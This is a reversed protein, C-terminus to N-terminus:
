RNLYYRLLELNYPDYYNVDGVRPDYLAADIRANGARTFEAREADSYNTGNNVVADIIKNFNFATPDYVPIGGTDDTGGAGLGAYFQEKEWDLLQQQYAQDRADLAAQLKAQAISNAYNENASALMSNYDAAMSALQNNGQMRVQNVQNDLDTLKNQHDRKYAQLANQYDSELALASSESLGGTIGQASLQQPLDRKAIMNEVYAGRTNDEYQQQYQPRLANIQSVLQDVQGRVASENAAQASQMAALSNVRQKELEDIYDDYAGRMTEAM